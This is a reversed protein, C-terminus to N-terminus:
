KPLISTVSTVVFARSLQQNEVDGRHFIPGFDRVDQGFFNVAGPGDIQHLHERSLKIARGAAQDAAVVVNEHYIGEAVKIIRETRAVTEPDGSPGAAFRRAAEAWARHELLEAIAKELDTM